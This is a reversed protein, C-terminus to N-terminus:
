ATLMISLFGCIRANGVNINFFYRFHDIFLMSIATFLRRKFLTTAAHLLVM